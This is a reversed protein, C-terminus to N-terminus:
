IGYIGAFQDAYTWRAGETGWRTSRYIANRAEYVTTANMFQQYCSSCDRPMETSIAWKIQQALDTPMDYRRGPHWSNLGWAIGGDGINQCPNYGGGSETKWSGLLQIASIQPVGEAKILQLVTAPDHPGCNEESIM